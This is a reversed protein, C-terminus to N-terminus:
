QPPEMRRQRRIRPALLRWLHDAYGRMCGDLRLWGPRRSRRLITSALWDPDFGDWVGAPVRLNGRLVPHVEHLLIAQLEAEAYPSAAAARAAWRVERRYDTDLYLASFAKWVPRRADIDDAAPRM